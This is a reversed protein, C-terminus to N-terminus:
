HEGDESPWAYPMISSIPVKRIEDGHEMVVQIDIGSNLASEWILQKCMHCHGQSLLLTVNVTYQQM